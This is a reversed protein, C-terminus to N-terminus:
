RWPKPLPIEREDFSERRFTEFICSPRRAERGRRGDWRLHGCRSRPPLPVASPNAPDHVLATAGLCPQDEANWIEVLAPVLRTTAAGPVPDETL